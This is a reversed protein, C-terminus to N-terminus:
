SSLNLREPVIYRGPGSNFACGKGDTLYLSGKLELMRNLLLRFDSDTVQRRALDVSAKALFSGTLPARRPGQYKLFLVENFKMELAQLTLIAKERDYILKSEVTFDALNIDPHEFRVKSARLEGMMELGELTLVRDSTIRIEQALLESDQSPWEVRAECAIELLHDLHIEV